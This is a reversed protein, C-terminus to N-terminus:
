GFAHSAGRDAVGAWARDLDIGPGIAVAHWGSAEARELAESSADVALLIPLASHHPVAALVEVDQPDIRGAILVLPGTLSGGFLAPVHRLHDEHRAVLTAFQAAMADVEATDNGDIPEWLPTGDTDLLDVAYGEHVLRAIASVCASLAAEFRPDTGAADMADTSWRPVGRDFVVVAHPTSEQEEQRVMLADRHASARWHIRRMSDGATYPRAVLNDSGQGLQTTTSQLTGGTEGALSALPSLEVIAPAVVVRTRDGVTISRRALGFPDASTIQLPGIWHVGRSVTALDYTVHVSQDGGRLGSGVSPFDGSASATMGPPVIDRWTGPATPLATRVGVHVSVRAAGGVAPVDPSLSRTVTDARRVAYLSAFSATLVALILVGFYVLEVLGLENAVAFCALATVLAGTGRLTM